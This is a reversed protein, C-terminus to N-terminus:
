GVGAKEFASADRRRLQDLTLVRGRNDVFRDVTMGGQRYLLGKTKGLIDDQVSATQKGFWEAYTQRPVPELGAVQPITTSRCNPHAPPRPGGDVPFVKGDLGACIETTRADLTSVWQVGQVIDGYTKYVEQHSASATHTIATRVMTEAGRRSIELIGDKYQAARTGRIQTILSSVSRGEVFGQRIADRVRKAAGEEADALWERLFRGQFPRANVAAVVQSATPGVPLAEIGAASAGFRVAKAAYEAESGALANLANGLRDRVLTWGDAQLARIEYLLSELQATSRGENDARALREVISQESRNLLALVKRVTANSYRNLALRHLVAENAIRESPTM